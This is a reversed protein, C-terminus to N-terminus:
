KGVCFREFVRALADESVSRGTVEGLVGAGEEVLTLVADPPIGASLATCAERLISAARSVAEAHRANTLVSGDFPIASTEFMRRVCADLAELGAGELASVRCIHLFAAELAGTDLTVGLDCKNVVIIARRGRAFDIVIRDDDTLAGESGDLVVLLLAADEAARIARAVGEQELADAPSRIGATDCVRLLVGGMHVREEITDRTTGPLSAVMARDYGALANLLSSKGTNPRGIIACRVGERLIRGREFTAGLTVLRDVVALIREAYEAASQPEIEEDPFDVAASFHAIIDCLASYSAEIARGVAGGLQSAAAHVADATEATILDIVAEAQSLDMRGNLFARKTFEGPRAPLAGLEYLESLIEGLLVPSGHCQFEVTDEGTYSSGAPMVVAYACDLTRGQRDAIKGYVLRRPDADGLASGSHPRFLASAIRVAEGGSIRIMGIGGQMPPTSIAAITEYM